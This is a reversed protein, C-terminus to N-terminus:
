TVKCFFIKDVAQVETRVPSQFGFPCPCFHRGQVGDGLTGCTRSVCLLLEAITRKHENCNGSPNCKNLSSVSDFYEKGLYDQYTTGEPVKILCKTNDKFLLDKTDSQFMKFRQNGKM